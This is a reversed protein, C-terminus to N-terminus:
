FEFNDKVKWLQFKNFNISIQESDSAFNM